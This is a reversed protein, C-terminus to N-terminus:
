EAALLEFNHKDIGSLLDYRIMGVDFNRDDTIKVVTMTTDVDHQYMAREKEPNELYSTPSRNISAGVM